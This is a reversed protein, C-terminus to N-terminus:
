DLLLPGLVHAIHEDRSQVVEDLLLDLHLRRPVPEIVELGLDDFRVLLGAFVDFEDGLRKVELAHGLALYDIVEVLRDARRHGALGHASGDPLHKGGREFELPAPKGFAHGDEHVAGVDRKLPFVRPYAPADGVFAGLGDHPDGSGAVLLYQIEDGDRVLARMGPLVEKQLELFPADSVRLDEGGVAELPHRFGDGGKRAGNALPAEDMDLPVDRLGYPGLVSGSDAAIEALGAGLFRLGFGFRLEIFEGLFPSDRVGAQDFLDHLRLPQERIQTERLRHPLRHPRAVRYLREVRIQLAVRVM